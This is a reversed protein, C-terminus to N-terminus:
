PRAIRVGSFDPTSSMHAQINNVEQEVNPVRRTVITVFGHYTVLASLVPNHNRCLFMDTTMQLMSIGYHSVLDHHRGYNQRLSPLKKQLM